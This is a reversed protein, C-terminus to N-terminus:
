REAAELISGLLFVGGCMLALFGGGRLASVMAVRQEAIWVHFVLVIALFFAYGGAVTVSILLLRSRWGSPQVRVPETEPHRAAYIVVGALVVYASLLPIVVDRLVSM